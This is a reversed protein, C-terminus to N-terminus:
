GPAHPLAEGVRDGGREGVRYWDVNRTAFMFAGLLGFLGFTGFVLSYSELQLLVFLYSYLVVLGAGIAFSRSKRKLISRAYGSIMLVVAAASVAYASGFRVHESLSLLLLFFLVLATGVSLYQIPHLKLGSLTEFLFFSGFTLLIFLLAYKIARMVQLYHSVPDILGVGFGNLGTKWFDVHGEGWLREFDAAMAGGSFEATFGDDDTIHRKLPLWSGLFSPSAWNSSLAASTRLALPTVKFSQSGKVNLTIAFPVDQGVGKGAAAAAGLGAPLKAAVHFASVGALVNGPAMAVRDGGIEAYAPAALANDDSLLVLLRANAWDLTDPSKGDLLDAVSFSGKLTLAGHYVQAQFIGRYRTESDIVGDVHLDRAVAFVESGAVSAENHGAPNRRPVVVLPGRVETQQGWDQLLAQTAEAQRQQREQILGEIMAQPVIFGVSMVGIAFLKRYFSPVQM